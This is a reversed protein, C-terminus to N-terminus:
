PGYCGTCDCCVGGSCTTECDSKPAPRPSRSQILQQCSLPLKQLEDMIIPLEQLFCDLPNITMGCQYGVAQSYQIYELTRKYDAGECASVASSGVFTLVALSCFLTRRLCGEMVHNFIWPRSEIHHAGNTM